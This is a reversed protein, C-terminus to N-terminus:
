SGDITLAYAQDSNAGSGNYLTAWQQVGASNYKITVYNAANSTEASGCVYVNGAADSTVDYGEDFGNATGNYTTAWMQNGSADYKITIINYDNGTSLTYGTIYSNGNDDVDISRAEDFGNGSGNFSSAWLQNGAPDYKVTVIDFNSGNWSTGTVIVNGTTDRDIDVARDTNSGASTYRSAWQINIQAVVKVQAVLGIVTLLITFFRNMRPKTLAM